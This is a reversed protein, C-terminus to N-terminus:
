WKWVLQALFQNNNTVNNDKAGGLFPFKNSDLQYDLQLVTANTLTINLGAIYTNVENNHTRTDPDYTDIRAVLQVMDTLKIGLYSEWGTLVGSVSGATYKSADNATIYEVLAEIPGSAGGIVLASANYGYTKTGLPNTLRHYYSARAYIGAIPTLLVSIDYAKDTIDQNSDLATTKYGTGNYVALEYAGLGQPMKGVISIGQDASSIVGNKDEIAKEITPYSWTDITGFYVDQQGVRVAADISSLFPINTFDVTAKKVWIAWDISGATLAGPLDKSWNKGSNEGGDTNNIDLTINGEYGDGAMKWRLYTRPITFTNNSDNGGAFTAPGYSGGYVQYDYRLWQIGYFTTTVDAFAFAFFTLAFVAALIFSLAKKMEKRRPKKLDRDEDKM